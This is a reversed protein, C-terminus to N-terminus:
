SVSISLDVLIISSCNSCPTQNNSPSLSIMRGVTLLAFSLSFYSSSMAGSLTSGISCKLSIAPMKFVIKKHCASWNSRTAIVSSHRGATLLTSASIYSIFSKFILSSKNNVYSWSFKSFANM